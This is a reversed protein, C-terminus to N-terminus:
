EVSCNISLNPVQRHAYRNAIRLVIETEYLHKLITPRFELRGSASFIWTRQQTWTLGNDDHHLVCSYPSSSRFKIVPLFMQNASRRQPKGIRGLPGWKGTMSRSSRSISWETGNLTANLFAHLRVANEWVHEHRMTRYLDSVARECV